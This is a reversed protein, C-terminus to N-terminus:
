IVDSTIALSRFCTPSYYVPEANSTKAKSPYDTARKLNSCHRWFGRKHPHKITRRHQGTSPQRQRDAALCAMIKIHCKMHTKM